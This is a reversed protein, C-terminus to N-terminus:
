DFSGGGFIKVRVIEGASVTERSQSIVTYGDAKALSTIAGSGERLPIASYGNGDEELSVPVLERRGKAPLIKTKLEAEVESREAESRGSWERLFPAVMQDFEMLASVPYGPLCFVPKEGVVAIVTPKGPKQALGHVIVGPEGLADITEPVVDRSGASSGGSTIIMDYNELAEKLESELDRRDDEVIGLYYSEAGCNVAMDSLTPGNVDYIKGRELKSGAEVLENGTSIIGVRPKRFVQVEEAGCALIAGHLQPTVKDGKSALKEGHEIESGKLSINEGPSVAKRVKVRGGDTVTVDEVMVVADAGEPIPAGTAIEVCEGAGVEVEPSDGALVEGTKRLTRPEDEEAGFTDEARLAFGDYVSRDFSPLDLESELDAALIKGKVSSVDVTVKSTEPEWHNLLESRAERPSKVELPGHM